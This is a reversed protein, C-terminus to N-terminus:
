RARREPPSRSRSNGWRRGKGNRNGEWATNRGESRYNNGRSRSRSRYNDNYQDDRGGRSRSSGRYERRGRNWRDYRDGQQEDDSSNFRKRSRNMSYGGGGYNKNPCEKSIHGFEKCIYCQVNNLNPCDRSMHGRQKCKFCVIDNDSSRNASNVNPCDRAEHGYQFCKYCKRNEISVFSSSQPVTPVQADPLVNNAPKTANAEQGNKKRAEEAEKKRELFEKYLLNRRVRDQKKAYQIWAQEDHGYNFYDSVDVGEERWPKEELGELDIDFATKLRWPEVAFMPDYEVDDDDLAKSELVSAGAFASKYRSKSTGPDEAEVPATSAGDGETSDGAGDVAAKNTGEPAAIM